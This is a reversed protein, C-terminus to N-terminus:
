LNEAELTLTSIGGFGEQPLVSIAHIWFPQHDWNIHVGNEATGQYSITVRDMLDFLLGALGPLTWRVTYPRNLFKYHREAWQNLRSQSNCRLHSIEEVEGYVHTPSSPYYAHLTAGSDTVAHLKVQRVAPERLDIRPRDAAWDIDVVPDPLSSQYMPHPHYHLTDTKDFCLLFFENDAIQRLADWLSTTERVIFRDVRASDALEVQDLSIWGMPNATPHYVCNTHAVWDPNTAPPDGLEDYYGLIHRIIRGLTMRERTDFQHYHDRLDSGTDAFGIGQLWGRRLIGDTTQALITSKAGTLDFEFQQPLAWGHFAPRPPGPPGGLAPQWFVSVEQWRAVADTDSMVGFRCEWGGRDIDASIEQIWVRESLDIM